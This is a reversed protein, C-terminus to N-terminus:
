DNYNIFVATKSSLENVITRIKNSQWIPVYVIDYYKKSFLEQLESELLSVINENESVCTTLVKNDAEKIVLQSNNPGKSNIEIIMKEKRM